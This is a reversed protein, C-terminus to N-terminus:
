QRVPSGALRSFQRRFQSPSTGSLRRFHLRFSETSGFGCTQAIQDVSLTTMELLDRACRIRERTLWSLPSFGTVERFKRLLTRESVNHLRAISSITHSAQLSGRLQDLLLGFRDRQGEPAVPVPVFQIQGGERHAPIVLRRAIRNAIDAGYDRRVIHLCMDLGAASGASTLLQGEDVYLVNEEVTISPYDAQLRELHQWHTTARCNNLLGARALLFVGSCISAIRAGRRHAQQLATTLAHTEEASGERWGPIIITDARTLLSLDHHVSVTLGGLALRPQRDFAVTFTEYLPEGLEPRPLCFIEAACGYEFTCLNNYVLIAVTPPTM